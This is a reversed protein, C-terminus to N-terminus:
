HSLFIALRTEALEIDQPSLKGTKKTFAHLLLFRKEPIACYLIRYYDSGHKIRLERLCEDVKHAYPMELRVNFLRLLKLVHLIEAIAGDSQALIFDRAPERGKADQYFVPQWEM